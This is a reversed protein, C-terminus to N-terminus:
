RCGVGLADLGAYRLGTYTVGVVSILLFVVLQSWTQRTIM